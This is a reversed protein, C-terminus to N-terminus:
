ENDGANHGVHATPESVDLIWEKIRILGEKLEANFAEADLLRKIWRQVSRLAFGYERCFEDPSHVGTSARVGTHEPFKGQYGVARANREREAEVNM